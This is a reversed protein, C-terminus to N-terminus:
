EYRLAEVPNSTAVKYVQSSVTILGVLFTLVSAFLIHWLTVDIHYAFVSDLLAGVAFYGAATAAACAILLVILIERNLLQVVNLISAGLVKRIGIEKTRKLIILSSLAFLGLAAISIATFSLYQFVVKISANIGMAKKISVDQYFGEYPIGPVLRLWDQMLLENTKELDHLSTRVVIYRYNDPEALRFVTVDYPRWIGRNYVNEVVGIVRYRVSDLTLPKGIPDTWGFEEVLKKSVLVSQTKDTTLAPDFDRGQHLQLGMTKVYEEGVSLVSVPFEKGEGTARMGVSNFEIQHQTGSTSMINPHQEVAQRYAAFIKTGQLPVVIAQEADYGPDFTDYYAANQTFVVGGIITMTSIAFQFMLVTRILWHSGSLGQKSQFISVPSFKSVYLAPYSAAVFSLFALVSMLFVFLGWNGLYHLELDVDDWLNSYAPVLLEALGLAIALAVLCLLANESLFQAVLQRRGSGLVKRVGVEKLRLGSFALSTNMFNFAATLLLLIAMVTPAVLAAPHMGELLIDSRLDRARNAADLLPDFYFRVVPMTPLAANQQGVYENIRAAVDNITTNPALQIFTEHSWQAWTEEKTTSIELFEAYPLLADFQLCSQLPVNRLVAGVVFTRTAGSGYSLTLQRDLVDDTGFYKQALRSTILIRGRERLARADGYVAPFTFLDLFEEDVFYIRENFIKEEHQLAGSSYIVRSEKEVQAVDRRLAPGLPRPTIGYSLETGNALVISRAVYIREANAHFRDFGQAFDYNLYAVIAIAIALSLAFVNIFAYLKKARFMRVAVKIFQTIM